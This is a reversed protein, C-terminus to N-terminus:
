CGTGDSFPCCATVTQNPANTMVYTAMSGNMTTTNTWKVQIFGPHPTASLSITTGAPASYTQSANSFTMPAGNGVTVTVDCWSFTNDVTLMPQAAAALDVSTALDPTPLLGILDFVPAVSLDSVVAVSADQMAAVSADQMVAVSADRMVVVSADPPPASSDGTSSTNNCGNTAAILSCFGILSLWSRIRM